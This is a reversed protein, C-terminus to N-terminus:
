FLDKFSLDVSLHHENFFNTWWEASKLTQHTPDWRMTKEIKEANAAVQIEFFIKATKKTIRKVEAVTKVLQPLSLHPLVEKSYLFDITNGEVNLNEASGVQISERIEVPSNDVAYKSMDVGGLCTFGQKYFEYLIFGKACGIEYISSNPKLNYFNIIKEVAIKYRGDYHYGGYGPNEPSGDFYEEGYNLYNESLMVNAEIKKERAMSNRTLKTHFFNYNKKM